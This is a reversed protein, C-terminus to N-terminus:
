KKNELVSKEYKPSLRFVATIWGVITSLFIVSIVPYHEALSSGASVATVLVQQLVSGCFRGLRGGIVEVAAQGKVKENDNLQGYVMNRTTDALSYKVSKALCVVIFGLIVTLQLIDLGLFTKNGTFHSYLVLIFFPVGFVFYVLPPLSACTKWKLRMLLNTSVFMFIITTIGIVISLNGKIEGYQNPTPYLTKLQVEWSLVSLDMALGVSFIIVLLLRLYSSRMAVQLGETLKVKHQPKKPEEKHQVYLRPDTLVYKNICYYILMIILCALVVGAMLLIVNRDFIKMAVEPALSKDVRSMARLTTGSCLVGVQGIVSFMAFFRTIETSLTIKNAFQWFLSAIAMTGWVESVVYFLIYPWNGICVIVPQLINLFSPLKSQIHTITESSMLLKEINPFLIFGFIAFFLAFSSILIYFTKNSGFKNVLLTFIMVVFFMAPLMFWLGAAGILNSSAAPPANLWLHAKTQIFVFKLDRIMTNVLLMFLMLLSMPLFKKLEYRHIPWFISQFRNFSKAQNM